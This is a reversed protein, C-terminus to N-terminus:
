THESADDAGHGRNRSAGHYDGSSNHSRGLVRGVRFLAIPRNEPLRGVFGVPREGHYACVHHGLYVVCDGSRELERPSARDLFGAAVWDGRDSDNSSHKDPVVGVNEPGFATRSCARSVQLERWLGWSARGLCLECVSCRVAQGIRITSRSKQHGSFGARISLGVDGAGSRWARHPGDRVDGVVSRPALIAVM